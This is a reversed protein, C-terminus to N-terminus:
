TRHRPNPNDPTTETILPHALSISVGDRVLAAAAKRKEPTILNLAGLQDDEGWRGWNSLSSMWEQIDAATTTPVDQAFGPAPLVVALFLLM